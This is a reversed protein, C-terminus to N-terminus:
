YTAAFPQLGLMKSISVLPNFIQPERLKLGSSDVALIIYFFETEVFLVLYYLCVSLFLSPFPSFLKLTLFMMVSHKFSLGSILLGLVWKKFLVLDPKIESYRNLPSVIISGVLFPFFFVTIDM